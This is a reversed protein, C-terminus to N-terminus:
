SSTLRYSGEKRKLTVVDSLCHEFSLLRFAIKWFLTLPSFAPLTSLSKYQRILETEFFFSLSCTDPLIAPLLFISVLNLFGLKELVLCPLLSCVPLNLSIHFKCSM